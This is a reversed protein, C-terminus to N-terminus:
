VAAEPRPEPQYRRQVPVRGGLRYPAASERRRVRFLVRQICRIRGGRRARVLMAASPDVALVKGAPGAKRAAIMSDVVAGCGLDLVTPGPPIEAFISVNSVDSLAEVSVAPPSDLITKPYGLSLALERGVPFPDNDRPREAAASYAGRVQEQRRSNQRTVMPKYTM